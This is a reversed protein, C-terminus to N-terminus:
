KKNFSYNSLQRTLFFPFLVYSYEIGNERFEYIKDVGPIVDIAKAINEKLFPITNTFEQGNIKCNKNFVFQEGNDISVAASGDQFLYTPYPQNPASWNNGSPKLDADIPQLIGAADYYNLPAKSFHFIIRRDPARFTSSFITRKSIDEKWQKRDKWESEPSSVSSIFPNNNNNNSHKNEALLQRNAVICFTFFLLLYFPAKVKTYFCTM